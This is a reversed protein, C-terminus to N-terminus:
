ALLSILTLLAEKVIKKSYKTWESQASSRNNRLMHLFDGIKHDLSKFKGYFLPLTVYIEFYIWGWEHSLNFLDKKQQSLNSVYILIWCNLQQLLFINKPSLRYSSFIKFVKKKKKFMKLSLYFMSVKYRLSSYRLFHVFIKLFFTM